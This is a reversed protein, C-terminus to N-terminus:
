RRYIQRVSESLTKMEINFFISSLERDYCLSGFLKNVERVMKALLRIVWNFMRTVHVRKGNAEAILQVLETTKVYEKNQPFLIGALCQEAVYAISACLNEIYLISRQNHFNPFIPCKVALKALRAFNGKCGVGYIMPLRMVAVCFANDNLPLIKKEAQLKSDGYFGNPSPPTVKTIIVPELSHSEGYVIISSLLIFQKVGSFKAAVAVEYPLETNIRYYLQKTEESAGKTDVHAIGAVHLVVDYGSFDFNKWEDHTTGVTAIEFKEAAYRTFSEGIYSGAGM